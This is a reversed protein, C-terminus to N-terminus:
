ARDDWLRVGIWMAVDAPLFRRRGGILRSRLKGRKVQRRIHSESFRTLEEVERLTLLAPRMFPAPM